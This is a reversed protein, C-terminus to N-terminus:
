RGGAPGTEITLVTGERNFELRLVEGLPPRDASEAITYRGLARGTVGDWLRVEGWDESLNGIATAVTRNDAAIAFATVRHAQLPLEPGAPRHSAAVFLRVNWRYNQGVTRVLVSGDASRTDGPRPAIAPPKRVVRFLIKGAREAAAREESNSVAPSNAAASNSAASNAAAPPNAATPRDRFPCGCVVIAVVIRVAIPKSVRILALRDSRVAQAMKM